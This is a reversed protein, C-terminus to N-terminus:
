LAYQSSAATLEGSPTLTFSAAKSGLTLDQQVLEYPGHERAAEVFLRYTGARARTGQLTSGDWQVTYTGPQRTASSVTQADTADLAAFAKMESLWRDQGGRDEHWLAVTKVLDGATNEIWVAIYPNRVRGGSSAAAFTFSATLTAASPLTETAGTKASGSPAPTASGSSPSPSGPASTPAASSPSGSPSGTGALASDDNSCAALALLAAGLAGTLATRRSVAAYRSSDAHTM